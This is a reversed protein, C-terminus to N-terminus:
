NGFIDITQGQAVTVIARKQSARRGFGTRTRQTKGQRNLTNVSTVKVKFIEEIAQKIEVKNASPDVVFTYQGRDSNAYSKESVVPRLIIDHATKRVAAM